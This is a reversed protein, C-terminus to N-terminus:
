LKVTAGVIKKSNWPPGAATASCSSFTSISTFSKPPLSQFDAVKCSSLYATLSASICVGSDVVKYGWEIIRVHNIFSLHILVARHAARCLAKQAILSLHAPFSRMAVSMATGTEFKASNTDRVLLSM